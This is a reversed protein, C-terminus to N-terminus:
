QGSLPAARAPRAPVVPGHQTATDVAPAEDPVAAAAAAPTLQAQQPRAESVSLAPLDACLQDLEAEIDREAEASARTGSIAAGGDSLAATVDDSEAVADELDAMVDDVERTGVSQLLARLATAGQASASLVVHNLDASQLDLLVTQLTTLTAQRMSLVQELRRRFKLQAVIAERPRKERLMQQARRQASRDGRTM